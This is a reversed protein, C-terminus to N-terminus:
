LLRSLLCLGLKLRIKIKTKITNTSKEGTESANEGHRRYYILPEDIYHTKAMIEAISALWADHMYINSPFPLAKTLIKQNFAMTAGIYNNKIFNKVFGTKKSGNKYLLKNKNKNKSFVSANSFILDNTELYKRSIRVKNPYWIDDQDSLFIIEGTANNLANEFNKIISGGNSSYIKIRNDQFKEIISITGDTSKDDSIILEDKQDLQPLISKIQEEIYKEGNYVAM